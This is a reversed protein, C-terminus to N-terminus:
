SFKREIEAFFAKSLLVFDEEKLKIEDGVKYKLVSKEPSLKISKNGASDSGFDDLSMINNNELMSDCLVRVENLANGDKGEVTRLRHVFFNDLVVTMDNFFVTEFAGIAQDLQKSAAPQNKAAAILGRYAAVDADVKSRCADIYERPYSRMGLM